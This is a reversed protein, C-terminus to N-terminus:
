PNKGRTFGKFLNIVQDYVRVSFGRSSKLLFLVIMRGGM